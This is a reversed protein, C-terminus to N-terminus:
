WAPLASSFAHRRAEIFSRVALCLFSPLWAAILTLRYFTPPTATTSSTGRVKSSAQSRCA